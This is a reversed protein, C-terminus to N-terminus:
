TLNRQLMNLRSGLLEERVALRDPTNNAKSQLQARRRARKIPDADEEALKRYYYDPPRVKRGDVILYDSPFADSAYRDFWAQGVGPRRSMVCFETAVRYQKGDVPSTRFYHQDAKSGTMKKMCYRAVYASSKYTVTGIECQGMGWVKELHDSKYVRNGNRTAWHRKDPLDYGFLLAHYHPRLGHDGYEGTALFRIRDHGAAKRLRKMFLQWHRLHVSFDTPVHTQDYTLTIFSNSAHMAAEHECRIAWQQAKAVRCGMCRGCSLVLFSGEVLNRTGSFTLGYKGTLANRETSRYAKLPHFCPM